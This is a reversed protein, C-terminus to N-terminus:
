VLDEWSAEVWGDNTGLYIPSNPNNLALEIKDKLLKTTKVSFVYEGKPIVYERPTPSTYYQPFHPRIANFHVKDDDSVGVLEKPDRINHKASDGFSILNLKEMNVIRELSVDYNRSGGPFTAGSGRVHRAWLDDFHITEPEIHPGVFKLHHQLISKFGVGSEDDEKGTIWQSKKLPDSRDLKKKAAKRIEKLITTRDKPGFHWGLANELMGYLMNVTPASQSRYYTGPQTTTMSLPSLAEIVIKGKETLEPPELFFNLDINKM